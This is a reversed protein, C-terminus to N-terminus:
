QCGGAFSAQFCGFDAITLTGTNNCDAYLNGAAFAAQFCGFDAITLNGSCNCDPYCVSAGRAGYITYVDIVQVAGPAMNVSWQYGMFGDFPAVSGAPFQLPDEGITPAHGVFATYNEWSPPLGYASWIQVDTGYAMAPDPGVGDPDAGSRGAYYRAGPTTTVLGVAIGTTPPEPSPEREYVNAPRCGAGDVDFTGAVDEWSGIGLPTALIDLDNHKNFKLNIPAAATNTFTWTQRFRAVSSGAAPKFVRQKLTCTLSGAAAGGNISFASDATDIVGDGDSDSGALPSTISAVFTGPYTSAMSSIPIALSVRDLTAPAYIFFGAGFTPSLPPEAGAPDYTDNNGGLGFGTTVAGYTDPSIELRGDGAINNSLTILGDQVPATPRVKM